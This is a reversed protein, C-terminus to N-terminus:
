ERAERAPGEAARGAGGGAGAASDGVVLRRALEDVDGAGMVVCLDGEHLLGALVAEADDFDPLWFVPRGAAADAAAGAVLLGSVGPFDAARERAPYVDLVAVVDALGLAHGLERALRRTRSYLHPQFVAVLRAPALTRAATLTAAVETPHHAYDDIVQAGGRAAGLRQFRRGAGHFDALGRVAAAPDAGALRAAELAGAANLANHAGPVPLRVELGAWSFTSGDGSLAAAEVDYAVVAGDRLALLDPRDWVVAQPASALFARFADLLEADSGFTAHHDLEVNTLVAIEVHLALMSRDSEDAEVVLWEGSTWEANPLGGGVEAGVLWGPDLGAGRLAHVLMSATTTKGHAGAVAITRRLATLEGLLDARPRETWGRARAEAREVNDEPVASSFYVEVGDATPLNQEDHGIAPVLIGDAALRELYPSTARDSGSVQAGLAQAARAYASMGAGGVGILHIRRGEWPRSTVAAATADAAAGTGASAGEQSRGEQSRGGRSRGGQPRGEQSRAGDPRAKAGASM